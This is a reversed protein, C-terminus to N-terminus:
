APVVAVINNVHAGLGPLSGVFTADGFAFVGGDSGVMWYGGGDATPVVGVVNRVHVGLGPLSGKFGADGFAFVGGDSGVLWYGRGSPTPAMAVVPQTLTQGAVSGFFGADGFAVPQAAIDPYGAAAVPEHAVTITATLAICILVAAGVTLLPRDPLLTM